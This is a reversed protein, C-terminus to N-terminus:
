WRHSFIILHPGLIM